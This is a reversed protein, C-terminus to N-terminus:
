VSARGIVYSGRPGSVLLVKHGGAPTYSTLYPVVKTAGSDFQVTCTTGGSYSSITATQADLFGRGELAALRTLADALEARLQKLWYMDDAPNIM